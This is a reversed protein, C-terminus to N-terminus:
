AAAGSVARGGRFEENLQVVADKLEAADNLQKWELVRGLIHLCDKDSARAIELDRGCDEYVRALPAGSEAITLAM